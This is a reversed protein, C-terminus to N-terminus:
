GGSGSNGTDSPANPEKSDPSTTNLLDAPLKLINTLIEVTRTAVATPALPVVVPAKITGSVGVPVALVSGGFIRGLIPMWNIIKNITKLPAVLVTADIKQTQIDVKGQAVIKALDIELVAEEFRLTRLDIDGKASMSKYQLGSKKIGPLKGDAAETENVAVMVKDLADFKRIEGDRASLTYTARANDFFEAGTGAAVLKADVDMMGTLLINQNTLCPISQEIRANRTHVEVNISARGRRLATLGGTLLINCLRAEQLDLVLRANELSATAIFPSVDFGAIHLDSINVRIHGSVPIQEFLREVKTLQKEGAAAMRDIDSEVEDKQGAKLSASSRPLTRATPLPIVVTDGRVDADVQFREGAGDISGSVELKSEGMAVTASEIHLQENRAEISFQEVTVSVPVTLLLGGPIAIMTGHLDGKAKSRAPQKLDGSVRLDGALAGLEFPQDAFIRAISQEVLKGKFRLDFRTAELKGGLEVDSLDDRLSINQIEVLKPSGRMAVNIIPGNAVEIKGRAAYEGDRHWQAEFASLKLSNRLRVTEPLGARVRLWELSKLGATGDIKVQLNDLGKRYDNIGGGVQMSADLASVKVDRMRIRNNSIDIVGGDFEVRPGLKPAEIATRRPSAALVYRLKNPSRLPGELESVSVSMSGTVKEIDGLHKKLEPLAAAWRVLEDLALRASGKGASLANPANLGLRAGVGTFTTRGIAGELDQAHIADKVYRVAGRKLLIPIPFPVAAHRVTTQITSVDLLVEPPQESMTVSARLEARGSLQKIQALERRIKRSRIVRKAIALGEALDLSLTADASLALEKAIM